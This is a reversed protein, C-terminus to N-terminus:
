GLNFFRARNLEHMLLVLQGTQGQQSHCNHFTFFRNRKGWMAGPAFGRGRRQAKAKHSFVKLCILLRLETVAYVDGVTLQDKPKITVM